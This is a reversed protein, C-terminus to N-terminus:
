FLSEQLVVLTLILVGLGFAIVAVTLNRNRKKLYLAENEAEKLYVEVNQPMEISEDPSLYRATSYFMYYARLEEMCNVCKRMHKVFALRKEFPIKRIIFAKFLKQAERCDMEAEKETKKKLINM